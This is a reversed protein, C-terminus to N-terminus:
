QIKGGVIKKNKVVFGGQYIEVLAYGTNWKNLPRYAPHLYCMCGVSYCTKINGRLDAESHESSQHLHGMLTNDKSKLYIGRAPNVPSTIGSGFEHGHMINLNGAKIFRKGDIYQLGLERVSFVHSMAFDDVGYIELGRNLMYREFRYEHNGEIWIILANPLIDNIEDILMWFMDREKIFSSKNPVKDFVSLSYFDVIDGGLIVTNCDKDKADELAIRVSEIDHFPLHIDSMFLIRSNVRPLEYPLYEPEEGKVLKGTGVFRNDSLGKRHKGGITGRYYRIIGRAHDISGFVLPHDNHLIRALGLSSQDPHKELYEIVLEGSIKKENRM